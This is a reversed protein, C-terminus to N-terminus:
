AFIVENTCDRSWNRQLAADVLRVLEGVDRGHQSVYVVGAHDVDSLDTEILSLFDDDFTLLLWEREAVYRLHKEDSEGLTDEEQASTVAWDRRRLGDVVPQWVNEDAYIM